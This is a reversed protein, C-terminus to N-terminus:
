STLVFQDNVSATTCKEVLIQLAFLYFLIGGIFNMQKESLYHGLWLGLYIAILVCVVHALSSGILVGYFDYAAAIFVATVQSRDGMEALVIASFLMWGAGTSSKHQEKELFPQKLNQSLGLSRFLM